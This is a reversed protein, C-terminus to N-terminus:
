EDKDGDEAMKKGGYTKMIYEYYKKQSELIDNYHPLDDLEKKGMQEYHMIFMINCMAAALHDENKKGMLYENLHRMASDLCRSFPIGKEWNRESYKKSGDELRRALRHIAFPSILDYRGKETAPERMAMDEGYTIRDGGDEMGPIDNKDVDTKPEPFIVMFVMKGTAIDKGPEPTLKKVDEDNWFYKFDNLMRFDKSTEGGIKDALKFVEFADIRDGEILRWVNVIFANASISDEFKVSIGM